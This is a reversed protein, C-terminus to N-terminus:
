TMSTVLTSVAINNTDASRLPASRSSQKTGLGGFAEPLDIAVASVVVPSFSVEAPAIASIEAPNDIAQRSLLKIDITRAGDQDAKVLLM